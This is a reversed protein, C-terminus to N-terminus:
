SEPGSCSRRLETQSSPQCRPTLPCWLKPLVPSWSELVPVCFVPHKIAASGANPRQKMVAAGLVAFAGDVAAGDEVAGDPRDELALRLAECRSHDSEEWRGSFTPPPHHGFGHHSQLCPPSCPPAAGRGGQSTNASSFCFTLPFRDPKLWGWSQPGGFPPEPAVDGGAAARPM